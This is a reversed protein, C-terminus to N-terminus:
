SAPHRLLAALKAVHPLLTPPVRADCLAGVIPDPAYPTLARALPGPLPVAPGDARLAATWIRRALRAAPAPVAPVRRFWAGDLARRAILGLPTAYRVGGIAGRVPGPAGSVCALARALPVPLRAPTPGVACLRGADDYALAPEGRAALAVLFAWTRSRFVRFHDGDLVAYRPADRPHDYRGLAVGDAPDGAYFGGRGWGWYGTRAYGPPVEDAATAAVAAPPLLLDAWPRLRAPPELELRRALEAVVDASPTRFSPISPVYPSPSPATVETLGLDGAVASVRARLSAPVLGVLSVSAGADYVVLRPRRALYTRSVWSRPTLVDVAGAEVWARAVEWLDAEPVGAVETLLSLFEGEGLGARRSALAAAVEVAADWRVGAPSPDCAVVHPALIGGFDVPPPDPSQAPVPLAYPQLAGHDTSAIARDWAVADSASGEVVYDAPSSVPKYDVGVPGDVFRIRRRGIERGGADAAVFSVEGALADGSPDRFRGDRDAVLPVAATESLRQVAAARDSAVLPRVAPDGLYAAGIRVGGVLRLAPGRATPQLCRVEAFHGGLDALDGADLPGAWAWGDYLSPRPRPRDEPALRRFARLLVKGVIEDRALLWVARGPDPLSHRTVPWGEDDRAFLLVGQDVSAALPTQSAASWGLPRRGLLRRVPDRLGDVEVVADYGGVSQPLPRANVRAPLALGPPVAAVLRLAREDALAGPEPVVLALRLAGRDERGLELATADRVATWFPHDRLALDGRRYRAAFDDFAALLKSPDGFEPRRGEVREIAERLTPEEGRLDGFTAAMVRRERLTPFALDYSYGIRTRYSSKPPLVLPRCRGREAHHGVWRAFGEWLASLGDFYPYGGSVDHGLLTRFREAFAGVDLTEEEGGAAAYCTLVLYAVYGPARFADPDRSAARYASSAISLRARVANPGARLAGVFADAVAEPDAGPDGVARRLDLPTAPVHTVPLSPDDGVFLSRFLRDSWTEASWGRWDVAPAPPPATAPDRAAM